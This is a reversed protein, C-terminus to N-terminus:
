LASDDTLTRDGEGHRDDLQGKILQKAGGGGRLGRGLQRQGGGCPPPRFSVRDSVSIHYTDRTRAYTTTIM